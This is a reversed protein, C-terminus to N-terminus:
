YYNYDDFRFNGLFDRNFISDQNFNINSSTGRGRWSSDYLPASQVGLEEQVPAAGGGLHPLEFFYPNNEHYPEDPPPPPHEHNHQNQRPSYHLDHHGHHHEHQNPHHQPGQRHRFHRGEDHQVIDEDDDEVEDELDNSDLEPNSYSGGGYYGGGGGSGSGCKYMRLLKKTDWKSM